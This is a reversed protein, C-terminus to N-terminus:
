PAAPAPPAPPPPPPAATVSDGTGLDSVRPKKGGIATKWTVTNGEGSLTVKGLADVVIANQAGDIALQDISEATMKVRGGHVSVKTCKGTLALEDTSGNVIVVPQKGCDHAAKANSDGMVWTDDGALAARACLGVLVLTLSLTRGV